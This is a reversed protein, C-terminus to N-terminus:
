EFLSALDAPEPLTSNAIAEGNVVITPTGIGGAGPQVPTKETMDTVFQSYKGSTVCDDIGDVGVGSAIELIQDDTLGTSGEAPQNEYMAQMFPVAATGDEVAVCYMANAARTSYETGQSKSDLISIPHIGLTITGDAVLNQIEPGYLQEFQNCIPCMFDIYTDFTNEGDGVLIAGTEFDVNAAQPAEGPDDTSNNLTVVLFAVGILVVVVAISTWIAFWNVKRAAAAM